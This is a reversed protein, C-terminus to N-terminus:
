SATNVHRAAEVLSRLAANLEQASPVAELLDRDIEVLRRARMAQEYYKGRVPTQRVFLDCYDTKMDETTSSMFSGKM